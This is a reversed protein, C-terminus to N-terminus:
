KRGLDLRATLQAISYTPAALTPVDQDGATLDVIIYEPVVGGPDTGLDTLMDALNAKIKVVAADIAANLATSDPRPM